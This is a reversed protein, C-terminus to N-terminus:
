RTADVMERKTLHHGPRLESLARPAADSKRVAACFVFFTISAIIFTLAFTVAAAIDHLAHTSTVALRRPPHAV